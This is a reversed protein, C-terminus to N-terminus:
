PPTPSAEHWEMPGFELVMPVRSSLAKKAGSLVHGEYGQTDMWILTSKPDVAELFKDLTESRIEITKRNQEDYLGSAKNAHVRHDGGNEESLELLVTEDDKSGLAHNHAKVRPALGNLHINAMLATFNRPEPEFAIAQPAFGRSVATICITGINAGVDVLLELRFEPGLLGVATQFKQFDYSGGDTFVSRSIVKDSTVVVFREVDSDCLLFKQDRSADFLVGRLFHHREGLKFLGRVVSVFMPHLTRALGDKLQPSM